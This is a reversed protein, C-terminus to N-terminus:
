TEQIAAFQYGKQDVEVGEAEDFIPWETIIQLKAYKVPVLDFTTDLCKIKSNSNKELVLLFIAMGPDTHEIGDSEFPKINCGIKESYLKLEGESFHSVELNRGPLAHLMVYFYEVGNHHLQLDRNCRTVWSSFPVCQYYVSQLM